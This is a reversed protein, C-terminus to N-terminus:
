PDFLGRHICLGCLPARESLAKIPAAGSLDGLVQDPLLGDPVAFLVMCWSVLVEKQGPVSVCCLAGADETLLQQVAQQVAPSVPDDNRPNMDDRLRRLL